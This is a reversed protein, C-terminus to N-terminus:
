KEALCDGDTNYPDFAFECEGNSLCDECTLRRDALWGFDQRVADAISKAAALSLPIPPRRPIMQDDEVDDELLGEALLLQEIAENGAKVQDEEVYKANTELWDTAEEFTMNSMGMVDYPTWRVVAYYNKGDVPDMEKRAM